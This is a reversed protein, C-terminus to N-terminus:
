GLKYQDKHVFQKGEPRNKIIELAEKALAIANEHSYINKDDRAMQGMIVSKNLLTRAMDIRDVNGLKEVLIADDLCRM